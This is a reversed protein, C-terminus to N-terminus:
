GKEPKRDKQLIYMVFVAVILGGIFAAVASVFDRGERDKLEDETDELDHLAADLDRQAASLNASANDLKWELQTVNYRESRLAEELETVNEDKEKLDKEVRAVNSELREIELELDDVTENTEELRERLWEESARLLSENELSDNLDLRLDSINEELSAIEDTLNSLSEQLIAIQENLLTLENLRAEMWAVLEADTSRLLLGALEEGVIPAGADEVWVEDIDILIDAAKMIHFSAATLNVARYTWNGTENDYIVTSAIIPAVGFERDGRAVDHKMVGDGDTDNGVESYDEGTTDTESMQLGSTEIFSWIQPIRYKALEIEGHEIANVMAGIALLQDLAQVVLPDSAVLYVQLSANWFAIDLARLCARASAGFAVGGFREHADFLVMVANAHDGVSAVETDVQLGAMDDFTYLNAIHGDTMQLDLVLRALQRTMEAAHVGCPFGPLADAIASMANYIPGIRATQVGRVNGNGSGPPVFDPDYFLEWSENHYMGMANWYVAETIALLDILTDTGFPKGDGVLEESDLVDYLTGLGDLVRMTSILTAEGSQSLDEWSPPVTTNNLEGRILDMPLWYGNGADADTMNPDGLDLPLRSTGNTGLSQSIYWVAETASLLLLYAEARTDNSGLGLLHSAVEAEAKVAQGLSWMGVSPEQGGGYARWEWVESHNLPAPGAFGPDAARFPAFIPTAGAPMTGNAMGELEDLREDLLTTNGSFSPAWALHVGAGSYLMLNEVYGVAFASLEGMDDFEKAQGDQSSAAPLWTMLLLMLVASLALGKKM